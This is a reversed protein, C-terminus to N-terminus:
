YSSVGLCMRIFPRFFFGVLRGSREREIWSVIITLLIKKRCRDRSPFVAVLLFFYMPRCFCSFWVHQLATTKSYWGHIRSCSVEAHYWTLEKRCSQNLKGLVKEARFIGPTRPVKRFSKEM